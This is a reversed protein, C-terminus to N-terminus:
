RACRCHGQASLTTSDSSETVMSSSSGKQVSGSSTPTSRCGQLTSIVTRAPGLRRLVHQCGLCANVNKRVTCDHAMTSKTIICPVYVCAKAGADLPCVESARVVQAPTRLTMGPMCAARNHCGIHM